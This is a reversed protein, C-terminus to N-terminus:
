CFFIKCLFEQLVNKKLFFFTLFFSTVSKCKQREREEKKDPIVSALNRDTTPRACIRANEHIWSTCADHVGQDTGYFHPATPVDVRTSAQAKVLSGCSEM